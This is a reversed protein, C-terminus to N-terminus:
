LDEGWEKQLRAIFSSEVDKRKYNSTDSKEEEDDSQSKFRIYHLARMANLLRMGWYNEFNKRCNLLSEEMLETTGLQYISVFDKLDQYIDALNESITMLVPTDSLQMDDHFVELYDDDSGLIQRINETILNYDDETVFKELDVSSVSIDINVMSTKLYLLSLVKVLKDTFDIKGEAEPAEIFLVFQNAVTVFEVTARSYAPSNITDDM